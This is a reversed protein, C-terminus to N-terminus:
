DLSEDHKKTMNVLEQWKSRDQALYIFYVDEGRIRLDM